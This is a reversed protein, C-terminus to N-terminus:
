VVLAFVVVLHVCSSSCAALIYTHCLVYSQINYKYACCMGCLTRCSRVAEQVFAVAEVAAAMMARLFELKRKLKRTGDVLDWLFEGEQKATPYSNRTRM